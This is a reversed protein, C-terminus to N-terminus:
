APFPLPDRGHGIRDSRHRDPLRRRYRRPRRHDDCNPWVHRFPHGCASGEAPTRIRDSPSPGTAQVIHIMVLENAEVPWPRRVRGCIRCLQQAPVVPSPPDGSPPRDLRERIDRTRVTVNVEADEPRLHRQQALAEELAKIHPCRVATRECGNDSFAGLIAGVHLLRQSRGLPTSGQSYSMMRMSTLPSRHVYLRSARIEGM